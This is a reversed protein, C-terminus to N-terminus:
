TSEESEHIIIQKEGSKLEGLKPLDEVKLPEKSGDDVVRDDLPITDSYGAWNKLMFIGSPPSIKGSLLFQELGAIILTKAAAVTEMRYKSCKVGRSWNFVTSRDVHLAVALSEIGPRLSSNECFEFYQSIRTEVEQDTQPRGMEYLQRLSTITSKVEDAPVENLRAQPVNRDRPM